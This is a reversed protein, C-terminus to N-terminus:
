KDPKPKPLTWPPPLGCAIAVPVKDSSVANPELTKLQIWGKVEGGRNGEGVTWSGSVPHSGAGKAPLKLEPWKREDSSVWTYKVTARGSTGISGRFELNRPCTESFKMKAAKLSVKTVLAPSRVVGSHEADPVDALALPALAVLVLSAGATAASRLLWTKM